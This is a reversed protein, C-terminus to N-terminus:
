YYSGVTKTFGYFPIYIIVVLYYTPIIGATCKVYHEKLGEQSFLSKKAYIVYLM